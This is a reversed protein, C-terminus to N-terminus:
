PNAHAKLVQLRLIALRRGHVMLAGLLCAAGGAMMTMPAGIVGALAGAALSGFPMPGNLAVTYWGVLRGRNRDDASTQLFVNTGAVMIMMGFGALTVFLVALGLSSALGIGVIGLAFITTSLVVLNRVGSVSPRAALYLAGVLSGAGSSAILLGLAEPGGGLVETALIPMLVMFPIGFLSGLALLGLVDRVDPTNLAARFSESLATGSSERVRRETTGKLKISALAALLPLFSVANLIFCIGAGVSALLLGAVAPGVTRSVTQITSNLSVASSLDQKEGDVMSLLLTQRATQDFASLVGLLLSLVLMHWIELAGAVVLGALVVAQVMSLTQTWVLLRKPNWRDIAIGPLPGCLLVPIQAAFEVAGLALASGTMQYALWAIALRQMWTGPLSFAQGLFFLGFSRHRLARRAHGLALGSVLGGFAAERRSSRDGPTGIAAIPLPDRSPSAPTTATAAPQAPTTATKSPRASGVEVPETQAGPSATGTLLQTIPMMALPLRPPSSTEMFRGTFATGDQTALFVAAPVCEEPRQTARQRLREYADTMSTLTLGPLLVNAAVNYPRLEEAIAAVFAHVGGKTSQYAADSWGRSGMIGSYSGLVIISGSRQEAMIPAIHKCSLFVSRLDLSLCSDFDDEDIDWFSIGSQSRDLKDRLLPRTLGAAALGGGVAHVLVDIRGFEKRVKQAIARVDEAKRVDAPLPLCRGGVASVCTNLEDLLDATRAVAVVCAGEQAYGAAIARGLGKSAGLVVATKGVLRGTGIRRDAREAQIM